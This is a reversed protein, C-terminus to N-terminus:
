LRASPLINGRERQEGHLNGCNWTRADVRRALRAIRNRDRPGCFDPNTYLGELRDGRIAGWGAVTAGVEAIWIELERIKGEMGAVTLNEAWSAAEAISMGGPALARISQRRLEFLRDTDDLTASRHTAQM